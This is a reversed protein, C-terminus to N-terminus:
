PVFMRFGCPGAVGDTRQQSFFRLDQRIYVDGGSLGPYPLKMHVHIATNTGVPPPGAAAHIIIGVHMTTGASNLCATGSAPRPFTFTTTGGEYGVIARCTGKAPKVFNQAVVLIDPDEPPAPNPPSTSNFCFATAALAPGPSLLIVAFIIAARHFLAM